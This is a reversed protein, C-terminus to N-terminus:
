GTMGGFTGWLVWLIFYFIRRSDKEALISRLMPSRSSAKILIKTARSPEYQAAHGDPHPTNENAQMVGFVSGSDAMAAGYAVAVSMVDLITDKWSAQQPLNIFHALIAATAVVALPALPNPIRIGFRPTSFSLALAYFISAIAGVLLSRQNVPRDLEDVSASAFTWHVVALFCLGLGAKLSTAKSAGIGSILTIPERLTTLSGFLLLYAFATTFPDDWKWYVTDFVALGLLCSAVHKRSKIAKMLQEQRLSGDFRVALATTIFLAARIAGLQLVAFFSALVGLALEGAALMTDDQMKARMKQEMSKGGKWEVKWPLFLNIILALGGLTSAYSLSSLLRAVGSHSYAGEKRPTTPLPELSPGPLAYLEAVVYSITVLTPVLFAM